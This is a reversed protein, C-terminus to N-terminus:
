GGSVIELVDKEINKLHHTMARRAAESDGDRAAQLIALHEEADAGARGFPRSVEFLLTTIRLKRIMKALVANGSAKAIMAHLAEDVAWQDPGRVGKDLVEMVRARLAEIAEPEVKGAALAAAEAETYQRVKMNQFFESAGVIHVSFSRNAQKVLLGEGELRALAERLPTRTLNLSNALRGEVLLEGGVLKRNLIMETVTKYAQDSLYSSTKARGVQGNNSPARRSPNPSSSANKAVAVERSSISTNNIEVGM